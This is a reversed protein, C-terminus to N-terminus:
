QSSSTSSSGTQSLVQDILQGARAPDPRLYRVHGLAERAREITDVTSNQSVNGEPARNLARTEARELAEQAEETRHGRLAAQADRLHQDASANEDASPTSPHPRTPRHPRGTNSAQKAESKLPHMAHRHSRMEDTASGHDPKKNTPRGTTLEKTEHAPSGNTSSSSAPGPATGGTAPSGSTSGSAPGPATTGTNGPGGTTGQASGSGSEPPKGTVPESNSSAPAATDSGGPATPPTSTTQALAAVAAAFLAASVLLTGRM